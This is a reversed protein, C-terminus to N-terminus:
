KIKRPSKKKRTKADGSTTRTPRPNAIYILSAESKQDEKWRLMRLAPNCDHSIYHTQAVPLRIM